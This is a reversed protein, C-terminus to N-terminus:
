ASGPCGRYPLALLLLRSGWSRLRRKSKRDRCKRSGRLLVRRTLRSLFTWLAEAFLPISSWSTKLATKATWEIIRCKSLYSMKKCDWSIRILSSKSHPNGKYSQRSNPPHCIKKEGIVFLVLSHGVLINIIWLFLVCVSAHRHLVCLPSLYISICMTKKQGAGELKLAHVAIKVFM